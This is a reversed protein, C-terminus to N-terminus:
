GVFEESSAASFASAPEAALGPCGSNVIPRMLRTDWNVSRGNESVGAGGAVAIEAASVLGTTVRGDVLRTRVDLLENSRLYPLPRLLTANVTSFIATTAAIGLALTILAVATFTPAGRLSRVAYRVDQAASEFWGSAGM